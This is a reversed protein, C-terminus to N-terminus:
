GVPICSPYWWPQLKHVVSTAILQLSSNRSIPPARPRYLRTPGRSICARPDVPDSEAGTREREDREVRRAAPHM